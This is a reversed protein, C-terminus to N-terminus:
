NTTAIFMGAFSAVVAMILMIVWVALPLASLGSAAVGISTLLALSIGLLLLTIGIGFMM